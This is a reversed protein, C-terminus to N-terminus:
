LTVNMSIVKKNSVSCKGSNLKQKKQITEKALFEDEDEDM